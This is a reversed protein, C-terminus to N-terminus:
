LSQEGLSVNSYRYIKLLSGLSRARFLIIILHIWYLCFFIILKFSDPFIIRYRKLGVYLRAAHVRLAYETLPQESNMRLVSETTLHTVKLSPTHVIKYGARLARLCLEADEYGFFIKEDWEEQELFSRPFVASPINVAEPPDSYQFYCRFGLKTPVTETKGLEDYCLGSLITMEEGFAKLSSYKHVVTEIFNPAICVDDDTFSILTADSEALVARLANNRNASVGNQPGSLYIANKLRAVLNQNQEQISSDISDDSVVVILPSIQSSRISELCQALAIPRDCTTICIAISM